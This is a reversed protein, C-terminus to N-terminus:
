PALTAGVPVVFARNGSGAEPAAAGLPVTDGAEGLLMAGTLRPEVPASFRLRLEAPPTRLVADAAPSSSELRTHAAGAAPLAALLLLAPLLRHLAWALAGAAPRLPYTASGSGHM